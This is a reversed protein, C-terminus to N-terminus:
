LVPIAYAEAVERCRAMQQALDAPAPPRNAKYDPYIDERFTRTTSDMAVALYAPRQNRVLSMLMNTVGLTAHTPEGKSNSLPAVGHYARFVYGSLDVVYLTDPDGPEPLQTPM